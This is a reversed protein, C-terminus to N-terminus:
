STVSWIFALIPAWCLLALGFAILLASLRTVPGGGDSRAQDAACAEAMKRTARFERTVNGDLMDTIEYIRM